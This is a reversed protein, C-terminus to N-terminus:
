RTWGFAVLGSIRRATSVIQPTWTRATFVTRRLPLDTRWRRVSARPRRASVCRATTVSAGPSFISIKSPAQHRRDALALRGGGSPAELRDRGVRVDGGLAGLLREGARDALGAAAVHVAADRGASPAAPGLPQVALDVEATRLVPHGRLDGRDLV